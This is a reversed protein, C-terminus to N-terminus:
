SREGVTNVVRQRGASIAELAAQSRTNLEDASARDKLLQINTRVMWSAGSGANFALTAAVGLAVAFVLLRDLPIERCYAFFLVAGLMGAANGLARFQRKQWLRMVRFKWSTTPVFAEHFM